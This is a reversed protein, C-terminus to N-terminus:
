RCFVVRNDEVCAVEFDDADSNLYFNEPYCVGGCREVNKEIASIIEEREM